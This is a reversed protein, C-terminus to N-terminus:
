EVLGHKLIEVEVNAKIDANKYDTEKWKMKKYENYHFSHLRLGISLGDCNAKQLKKIVENADKTLVKSLKEEIKKEQDVVDGIPYEIVEIALKMHITGKVKGNKVDLKMKKKNRLVSFSAYDEITPDQDDWLKKYMLPNIKAKNGALLNFLISENPNLIEGSFKDTDFLALGGVVPTNDSKSKKMYPVVIDARSDDFIRSAQFINMNTYLGKDIESEILGRYYISPIGENPIPDKVYGDAKGETIVLYPNIPNNPRRIFVDLYPYLGDEKVLKEALFVINVKSVDLTEAVKRNVKESVNNVTKGKVTTVISSNPYNNSNPTSYTGSIYGDKDKDYSVTLIFRTDKLMKEDWCGTLLFTCVVIITNFHLRRKM